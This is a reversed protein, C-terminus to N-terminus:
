TMTHHYVPNSISVSLWALARTFNFAVWIGSPSHQCPSGRKREPVNAPGSWDSDLDTWSVDCYLRHTDLYCTTKSSSGVVRTVGIRGKMLRMGLTSENNGLLCIKGVM